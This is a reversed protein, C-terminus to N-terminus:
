RIPFSSKHVRPSASCNIEPYVSVGSRLSNALKSYPYLHRKKERFHCYSTTLGHPANVNEISTVEVCHAGSKLCRRRAHFYAPFPFNEVLHLDQQLVQMVARNACCM